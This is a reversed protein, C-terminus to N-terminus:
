RNFNVLEVSGYDDGMILPQSCSTHFQITSLLTTKTSDYVYVITNTGLTSYASFGLLASNAAAIVFQQGQAVLGEFFRSKTPNKQDVVILYVPTAGAPDGSVIV